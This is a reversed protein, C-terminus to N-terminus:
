KHGQLRALLGSRDAGDAIDRGATDLVFYRWGTVRSMRMIVNAAADRGSTEYATRAQDLEAAMMKGVPDGSGIRIQISRSMVFFMVMSVILTGLSWVLIRTYVSRM